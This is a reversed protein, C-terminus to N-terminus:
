FIETEPVGLESLAAVPAHLVTALNTRRLLALREGLSKKPKLRGYVRALRRALIASRNGGTALGPDDWILLMRLAMKAPDKSALIREAHHRALADESAQHWDEPRRRGYPWIGLTAQQWRQAARAITPLDPIPSFFTYGGAFEATLGLANLIETVEPASTGTREQTGAVGGVGPAFLDGLEALNEGFAQLDHFVKRDPQDSLDEMLARIPQVYPNLPAMLMAHAEPHLDGLGGEGPEFDLGYESRLAASRSPIETEFQGARFGLHRSVVGASGMEASQRSGQAALFAMALAGDRLAMSQTLNLAHQVAERLGGEDIAYCLRDFRFEAWLELMTLGTLSIDTDIAHQLRDEPLLDFLSKAMSWHGSQWQHVVALMGADSELRFPRDFQSTLLYTAERHARAELMNRLDAVSGPDVDGGEGDAVIAIRGGSGAQGAKIWIHSAPAKEAESQAVQRIDSRPADAKAQPKKVRSRQGRARLVADQADPPLDDIWPDPLQSALDPDIATAPGDNRTLQLRHYLARVPDTDAYVQVARENIARTKDDCEAYTLELIERRVEEIHAYTDKRVPRVLWRQMELQELLDTAQADDIEIELAPAVIDRLEARGLEPLILGEAAIERLDSPVRSLIARYLYGTGAQRIRADNLDAGEAEDQLTRAVLILRLPNGQALEAIRSWLAQPVNRKALIADTVERDLRELHILRRLRPDGERFVPGRGASIVSIDLREKNALRDIHDMLSSVFTAGHGHLVELTDLLVLLQREREALIDIMRHLLDFPVSSGSQTAIRTRREATKLRLDHLEAAVEPIAAGLQRSIEDFVADAAGERLSSRDFDLRIMVIHPRDRILRSLEELLFTKGVGPLGQIHLTHLPAHREPADLVELLENIEAIRGVFADGLLADTAEQRRLHDLKSSLALLHAHGPAAPGAQELTAVTEQLTELPAPEAIMRELGDKSYAREGKIAAGIETDPLPTEASMRSLIKRRPIPRMQWQDGSVSSAERLASMLKARLMIDPKQAAPEIEKLLARPEFADVLAAKLFLADRLELYKDSAAM